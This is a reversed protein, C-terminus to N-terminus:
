QESASIFVCLRALRYAGQVSARLVITELNSPLRAEEDYVAYHTKLPSTRILRMILFALVLFPISRNKNMNYAAANSKIWAEIVM